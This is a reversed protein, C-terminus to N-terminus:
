RTQRRWLWIVGLFVSSGALGWVAVLSMAGTSASTAAEPTATQQVTPTAAAQRLRVAYVSEETLPIGSGLANERLLFAAIALYETDPLAGPYEYPMRTRIYAYLQGATEFRSLSNAGIIAPVTDPLTFGDEYPRKGHCGSNWCYQDEMPYQERWEDTLGQGVDGHCPQCNLWYLYAGDDAQTPSPVTPPPALRDVTPTPKPEQAVALSWSLALACLVLLLPFLFPRKMMM